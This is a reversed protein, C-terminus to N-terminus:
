SNSNFIEWWSNKELWVLVHRKFVQVHQRLRDAEAASVDPSSGYSGLRGGQRRRRCASFYRAYGAYQKGMVLPLVELPTDLDGPRAVRYGKLLLATAAYACAADNASSFRKEATKADNAMKLCDVAWLFIIALNRERTANTKPAFLTLRGADVYASLASTSNAPRDL